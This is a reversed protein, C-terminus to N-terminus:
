RDRAALAMSWGPPNIPVVVPEGARISAEYRDWHMDELAPERYRPINVLVIWACLFPAIRGPGTRDMAASLLLWIAILQPIFVYRAHAVPEFYGGLGYRTRYLGAALMGFFAAGLLARADRLSGKRFALYGICALTAIGAVTGGALGTKLPTFSGMLLSEGVRRGIAPLIRRSQIVDRVGASGSMSDRIVFCGQVLAWAGVAAALAASARTRRTWARWAFAPSLIISFPGTLGMAAAAAFDHIWQGRGRPDQSILLLVLGAGIVWQLNVVNLLVEYTDPVLVVALACAGGLRPLPCRESLTRGAVYLTVAASCAVFMTPGRAPDTAVAIAGIVRPVTHLYGAFPLLFAHWGISYAREFFYGDEAWFQPNTLAGARRLGLVVACVLLIAIGHPDGLLRVMWGKATLEGTPAAIAKVM